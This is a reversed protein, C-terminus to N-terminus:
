QLLCDLVSYHYGIRSSFNLYHDSLIAYSRDGFREAMNNPSFMQERVVSFFGGLDIPRPGHNRLDKHLMGQLVAAFPVSCVQDVTVRKSYPSVGTLGGGLDIIHLDLPIPAVLKLAGAGETDSVADSIAFMERYSLEHVFRMIDHLTKCHEPTFNTARPNVLHLPVIWDAVRRLTQYVPTDKMASERIRRVALLEEVRGRYVRGSYADVTIEAQHPIGSFAGPVGLLTPVGFERAVSAMHGTVSGADSVIAQAKHMVVVFEPSSHKAVLVGGEPFGILDDISSVHYATGCGVGPCAISGGEVVVDYGEVVPLKPRDGKQMDDLGLPRTQLM